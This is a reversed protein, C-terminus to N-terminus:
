RLGWSTEVQEVEGYSSEFRCSKTLNEINWEIHADGTTSKMQEDDNDNDDDQEEWEEVYREEVEKAPLFVKKMIKTRGDINKICPFDSPETNKRRDARLCKERNGRVLYWKVSRRRKAVVSGLM